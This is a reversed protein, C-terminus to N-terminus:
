NKKSLFELQETEIENLKKQISLLPLFFSAKAEINLEGLYMDKYGGSSYYSYLKM